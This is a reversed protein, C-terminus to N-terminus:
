LRTQERMPVAGFRHQSEALAQEEEAVAERQTFIHRATDRGERDKVALLRREHDGVEHTTFVEGIM